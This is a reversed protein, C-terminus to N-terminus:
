WWLVRGPDVKGALARELGALPEPAPRGQERAWRGALRAGCSAALALAEAARGADALRVSLVGEALRGQLGAQLGRARAGAAFAAVVAAAGEPEVKLEDALLAGPADFPGPGAEGAGAEEAWGRAHWVMDGFAAAGERVEEAEGDLEVQLLEETGPAGALRRATGDAWLLYAPRVRERLLRALAAAEGAPLRARLTRRAPPQPLLKLTLEVAIGLHALPAHLFRTLDYGTVNKVTRGGTSLVAGTGLVTRSGLLFHKAAGYKLTRAHGAGCAYLAGATGDPGPRPGEAPVFRLGRARLAEELVPLPVGAEVRAVLDGGDIELIRALRDLRLEVAGASAPRHVAVRGGAAAAARVAEAVEAEDAPHLVPGPEQAASM